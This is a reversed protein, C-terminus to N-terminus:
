VGPKGIGDGRDRREGTKRSHAASQYCSERAGRIGLVHIDRADAHAQFRRGKFYWGRAHTDSLKELLSRTVTNVMHGYVRPRVM